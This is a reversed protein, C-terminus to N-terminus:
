RVQADRDDDLTKLIDELVMSERNTSTQIPQIPSRPEGMELTKLLDLESSLLVRLRGVLSEKRGQMQVIENNMRQLDGNAQELIKAAKMEAERIILEAERRASEYTRGTAEQAQLLTQQLSKEIQRYDKLQTDLEVVKDRLERQEKLLSEFENATMDNFTDIEVPDYGRFVKKFEQKRIDLPTLRM